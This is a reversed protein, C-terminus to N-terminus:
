YDYHRIGDRYLNIFTFPPPYFAWKPQYVKVYRALLYLGVFSITSYGGMFFAAGPTLFGYVSQFGFFGWLVWRYMRRSATAVFANLVPSLIYLLLYAKVFWLKGTFLGLEAIGRLSLRSLGLCVTVAYIGVLFFLCQFALNCIGKVSPRIGFWGSILVFVDVCVISLAEFFFRAAGNIPDAVMESPQPMKLSFFNVHVVLVLFMAFFRLLEINSLRVKGKM